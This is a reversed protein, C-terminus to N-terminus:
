DGHAKRWQEIGQVIFLREGPRVLGLKRAEAALVTDSTAGALRRELIRREADLRRVEAARAALERRTEVYTKLPRYYVFAILAVGAVLLWRVVSRPRRRTRRGKRAASM